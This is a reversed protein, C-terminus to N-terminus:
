YFCIYKKTDFVRGNNAEFSRLRLGKTQKTVQGGRQVCLPVQKIEAIEDGSSRYLYYSVIFRICSVGPVEISACIVINVRRQVM